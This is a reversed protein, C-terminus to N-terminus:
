SAAPVRVLSHAAAGAPALARRGRSAVLAVLAAPERGSCRRGRAGATPRRWSRATASRSCCGGRPGADEFKYPEGPVSGVREWRPAATARASCPGTRRPATSPTPRRGSWASARAARRAAGPGAATRPASCSRSTPPSSGSAPRAPRGRLRHDARAAHVAGRVHARRRALGADRGLVADFAYMRDHKLVIKHLDAEGLRSVVHWTRGATTPSSSAWSAVAAHGAPGPPRLRDPAGTGRGRARPVHGRHVVQRRRLDHRARARRHRARPRDALLRPQDDAAPAGDAATAPRALQRVAAAQLLGGAPRVQRGARRARSGAQSGCGAAALAIAAAM